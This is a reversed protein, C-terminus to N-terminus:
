PTMFRIGARFEHATINDYNIPTGGGLTTWAVADGLHVFRYNVDLVLNPKLDFAVGATLAWAFNWTTGGAWTGTSADPNVFAVNSTRLLSVGAGAGVYPTIPGDNPNIDFYGNLLLTWASLNATETSYEPDPAPTCPANCILNGTIHGPWEYDLTVDTRFAGAPDWGFGVGVLGTSTISENIFEGTGPVNYGLAPLDFSTSPPRYDKFGLDLRLYWQSTAAPPTPPYYYTPPQPLDAAMASVPLILAIGGLLVTKAFRGM